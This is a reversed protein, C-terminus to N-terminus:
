GREWFIWSVTVPKGVRHVGLGAGGGGGGGGGLGGNALAMIKEMVWLRGTRHERTGQAQGERPHDKKRQPVNPSVTSGKPHERETM